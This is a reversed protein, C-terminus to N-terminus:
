LQFAAATLAQAGSLQIEFEALRDGDLDALVLTKSGALRWALEGGAGSFASAGIFTFADDAGGPRADLAMLDIRDGQAADFDRIQDREDHTSHRV